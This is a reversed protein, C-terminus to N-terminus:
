RWRKRDPHLNDAAAEVIEAHESHRLRELAQATRLATAPAAWRTVEKTMGRRRSAVFGSDM